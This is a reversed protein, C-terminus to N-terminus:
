ISTIGGSTTGVLLSQASTDTLTPTGSFTIGNFQGSPNPAVLSFTMAIVQGSATNTFSTTGTVTVDIVGPTAVNAVFSSALPVDAGRNVSIPKLQSVNYNLILHFGGAGVPNTLTVQVPVATGLSGTVSAVTLMRPTPLSPGSCGTTLALTVVLVLACGLLVMVRTM